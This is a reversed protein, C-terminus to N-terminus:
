SESAGEGGESEEPAPGDGDVAPHPRPHARREARIRAQREYYAGLLEPEATAEIAIPKGNKGTLEHDHRDRWKDKERNKLFFAIAGTDPPVHKIVPVRLVEKTRTITPPAKPDSPHPTEVTKDVLFIEEAEYTYGNARHYLSRETRRNPPRKGLKIAASFKPHTNMWLRLTSDAVGLCQAIEFETAGLKALAAAQKIYTSKYKTPRGGGEGQSM